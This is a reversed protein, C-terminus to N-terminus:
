WPLEISMWDRLVLRNEDSHKYSEPENSRNRTFYEVAYEGAREEAAGSDKCYMRFTYGKPRLRNFLQNVAMNLPAKSVHGVYDDIGRTCNNSSAASTVVCIRKGEGKALLPLFAEMVRLPGLSNYDYAKQLMKYDPPDFITKPDPQPCCDYNVVLMDVLGFKEEVTQAAKEASDQSFPDIDVCFTEAELAAQGTILGGAVVYGRKLFDQALRRGVADGVGAIFVVKSMRFREERLILVALSRRRQGYAGAPGGM